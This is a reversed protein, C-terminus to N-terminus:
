WIIKRVLRHYCLAAVLPRVSRAPGVRLPSTPDAAGPEAGGCVQGRARGEAAGAGRGGGGRPLCGADMGLRGRRVDGDRGVDGEAGAGGVRGASWPRGKERRSLSREPAWWLHSRSTGRRRGGM